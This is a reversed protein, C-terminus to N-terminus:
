LYLEKLCNKQLDEPDQLVQGAHRDRQRDPARSHGPASTSQLASVGDQGPGSGQGKQSPNEACTPCFRLPPDDHTTAAHTTERREVGEHIKNEFM